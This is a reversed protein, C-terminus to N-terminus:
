PSQAEMVSKWYVSREYLRSLIADRESDPAEVSQHHAELVFDGAYGIKKLLSFCTAFDLTGDGPILHEDRHAGHNDQIHLSLPASSCDLLATLAEGESHAHGTDYCWGFFPSNVRRVLESIVSPRISAGWLLNETLLIVGYQEALSLLPRIAEVNVSLFDEPDVITGEANKWIPHVVLYRIGLLATCRLTKEVLAGRRDASFPAHAHTFTLGLAEAKQRLSIAWAEYDETMFPYDPKQICYDFALDLHSFGAARLRKLIDDMDWCPPFVSTTTVINM